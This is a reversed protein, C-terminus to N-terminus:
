VHIDCVSLKGVNQGRSHPCKEILSVKGQRWLLSYSPFQTYKLGQFSSVERGPFSERGLTNLISLDCWIVRPSQTDKNPISDTRIHRLYPPNSYQM